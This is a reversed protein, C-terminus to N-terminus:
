LVIFFTGKGGFCDWHGKVPFLMVVLAPSQHFLRELRLFLCLPTEIVKKVGDDCRRNDNSHRKGKEFVVVDAPSNEKEQKM